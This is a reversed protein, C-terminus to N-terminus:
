RRHRHAIASVYAHEHVEGTRAPAYREDLEAALLKAGFLEEEHHESVATM